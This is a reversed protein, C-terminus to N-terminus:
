KKKQGTNGTDLIKIKKRAYDGAAKHDSDAMEQLLQRAQDNKKANLLLEALQRQLGFKKRPHDVGAIAKRYYEITKDSFNSRSYIMALRHNIAPDDPGDKLIEAAYKDANNEDNLELYTVILMERCFRAEKPSAQEIKRQYLEIAKNYMKHMKYMSALQMAARMDNPNLEYLKELYPLAKKSDREIEIYITTLDTLTETDNPDSQLLAQLKFITEDIRHQEKYLQLLKRKAQSRQPLDRDLAVLRQLTNEYRTFDKKEHYQDAIQLLLTGKEVATETEEVAKEFIIEAQENQSLDLYLAGTKLMLVRRARKNQELKLAQEYEQIAQQDMGYKQHVAGLEQYYRAPIERKRQGQKPATPNEALSSLAVPLLIVSVILSKM